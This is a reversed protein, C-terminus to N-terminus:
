KLLWILAALVLLLLLAVVLLSAARRDATASNDKQQTRMLGERVLVGRMSQWAAEEQLLAQAREAIADAKQLSVQAAELTAEHQEMLRVFARELREDGGARAQEAKQRLMEVQETATAVMQILQERAELAEAVQAETRERRSMMEDDSLPPRLGVSQETMLRVLAQEIRLAQWQSKLALAEATKQRIREQEGQIASKVQEATEKASEWQSETAILTQSYNSIEHQLHAAKVADGRREAEEAEACLKSVQKQLDMVMQELLNKQTIAQVARERNRVLNLHMEDQAQQLLQEPDEVQSLENSIRQHVLRQLRKWISM